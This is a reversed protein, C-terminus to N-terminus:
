VTGVVVVDLAGFGGVLLEFPFVFEEIDECFPAPQHTKDREGRATDERADVDASVLEVALGAGVVELLVAAHLQEVTLILEQM